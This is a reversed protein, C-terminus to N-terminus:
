DISLFKSLTSSEIDAYFALVCDSIDVHPLIESLAAGVTISNGLGLM